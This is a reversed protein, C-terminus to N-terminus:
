DDAEDMCTPIILFKKELRWNFFFFFFFITRSTLNFNNQEHRENTLQSKLFLIACVFMAFFFSKLCFPDGQPNGSLKEHDLVTNPHPLFALGYQPLPARKHFDVHIHPRPRLRLMRVWGSHTETRGTNMGRLGGPPATLLNTSLTPAPNGACTPTQLTFRPPKPVFIYLYIYNPKQFATVNNGSCEPCRGSRRQNFM